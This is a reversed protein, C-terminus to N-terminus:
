GEVQEAQEGAADLASRSANEMEVAARLAPGYHTAETGEPAAPYWGTHEGTSRWARVENKGNTSLHWNREIAWRLSGPTPTGGKGERKRAPREPASRLSAVFSVAGEGKSSGPGASHGELANQSTAKKAWAPSKKPNIHLAM